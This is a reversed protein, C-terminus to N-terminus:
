KKLKAAKSPMNEAKKLGQELLARIQKESRKMRNKDVKIAQPSALITSKEINKM